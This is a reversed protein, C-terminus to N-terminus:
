KSVPKFKHAMVENGQEDEGLKEIVLEVPMNLKLDKFDCGTFHTRVRVGEPLKIVGYAYPVKGIYYATPAQMIISFSYIKGRRSLKVEDLGKHQCRICIQKERKPFYVQGCAPCKSGILSPKECPSKPETWLEEKVPIRKKVSTTM